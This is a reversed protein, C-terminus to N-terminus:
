FAVALLRCCARPLCPEPLACGCTRVRLSSVVCVEMLAKHRSTAASWEDADDEAEAAHPQPLPQPSPDDAAGQLGARRRSTAASLEGADTKDGDAAEVVAQGREDGAAAGGGAPVPPSAFGTAAPTNTETQQTRLETKQQQTKSGTNTTKAATEAGAAAAGLQEALQEALAAEFWPGRVYETLGAGGPTIGGRHMSGEEGPVHPPAAHKREETSKAEAPTSPGRAM